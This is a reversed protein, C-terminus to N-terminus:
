SAAGAKPSTRPVVITFETFAGAESAVDLTGGHQL